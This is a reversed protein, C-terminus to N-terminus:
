RRKTRITDSMNWLFHMNKNVSTVSYSNDHNRKRPLLKISQFHEYLRPDVVCTTMAGLLHSTTLAEEFITTEDFKSTNPAHALLGFSHKVDDLKKCQEESCLLCGWTCLAIRRRCAIRGLLTVSHLEEYIQSKLNERSQIVNQKQM